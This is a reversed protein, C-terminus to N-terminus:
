IVAHPHASQLGFLNFEYRQEVRRIAWAFCHEGPLARPYFSGHFSIGPQYARYNQCETDNKEVKLM